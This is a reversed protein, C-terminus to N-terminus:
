NSSYGYNARLARLGIVDEAPSEDDMSEFQNVRLGDGCEM